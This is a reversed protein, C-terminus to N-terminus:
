KGISGTKNFALIPNSCSSIADFFFITISVFSIILFDTHSHIFTCNLKSHYELIMLPWNHLQCNPVSKIAAANSHHALTMLKGSVIPQPCGRSHSFYKTFSISIWWIINWSGFITRDVCLWLSMHSATAFENFAIVCLLTVCTSHVIFPTPSLAHFADSSSITMFILDKQCKCPNFMTKSVFLSCVILSKIAWFISILCGFLATTQSLANLCLEPPWVFATM